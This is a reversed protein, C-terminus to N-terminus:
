QTRRSITPVREVLAYRAPSRPTAPAVLRIHGAELLSDRADRYRQHSWGGFVRAEAMAKPVISFTEGRLCRTRHEARLLLLLTIADAGNPYGCPRARSFGSSAPALSSGPYPLPLHTQVLSSLDIM